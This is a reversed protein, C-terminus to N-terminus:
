TLSVVENTPDFGDSDSPDNRVNETDRMFKETVSIVTRLHRMAMPEEASLALAQATRVINKIIRGNFPKMALEKINEEHLLNTEADSPLLPHPVQPADSAKLVYNLFQCWIMSRQEIDLESYKIAVSVRSLFAQDFAKVRNTTLFLVGSHYELLRLFTAVLSNRMLDANARRELFVDAEDILLVANWKTALDLCNQLAPEVESAMYGLEGSGVVYLPRHLLEAVAEATLTKGVGAVGHLLVVLGGGKGKIWDDIMRVDRRARVHVLSRILTKTEADLVLRDWAQEDYVVPRLDKVRIDGWVKAAFSYGRLVPSLLWLMDGPVEDMPLYVKEAKTPPPPNVSNGFLDVEPTHARRLPRAYRPPAMDLGPDFANPDAKGLVDVMARGTAPIDVHAFRAPVIISGSIHVHHVGAYQTYKRGRETLLIRQDDEMVTVSLDSLRQPGDFTHIDHTWPIHEYQKGTWALTRGRLQFAPMNGITHEEVVDIMAGLLEGSPGHRTVVCIDAKFVAWLFEFTIM